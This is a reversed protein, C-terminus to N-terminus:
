RKALLTRYDEDGIIKIKRLEELFYKFTDDKKRADLEKILIKFNSVQHLATLIDDRQVGRDILSSLM